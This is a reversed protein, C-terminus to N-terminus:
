SGVIRCASMPGAPMPEVGDLQCVFTKFAVAGADWMAKLNHLNGPVAGGMSAFDVMAKPRCHEIKTRLIDVDHVPPETRHHEIVTTVGRRSNSRHRQHFGRARHAGPGHGVTLPNGSATGIPPEGGTSRPM